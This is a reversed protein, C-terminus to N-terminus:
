ATIACVLPAQRTTTLRVTAPMKRAYRLAAAQASDTYTAASATVFFGRRLNAASAADIYSAALSSLRRNYELSAAQASDTFASGSATVRRANRLTASQQSYAFTAALAAVLRNYELNAATASRTFSVGDATLTYSVPGSSTAFYDDFVIQGAVGDDLFLGRANKTNGEQPFPVAM